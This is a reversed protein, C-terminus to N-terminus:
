TQLTKINIYYQMYINCPEPSVKSLTVSFRCEVSGSASSLILWLLQKRSLFNESCPFNYISTNWTNWSDISNLISCWICQLHITALVFHAGRSSLWSWFSTKSVLCSRENSPLSRCIQELYCSASCKSWSTYISTQISRLWVQSPYKRLLNSWAFIVIVGFTFDLAVVQHVLLLKLSKIWILLWRLCSRNIRLCAWKM